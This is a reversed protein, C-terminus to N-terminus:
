DENETIDINAKFVYGYEDLLKMDKLLEGMGNVVCHMPNEACKVPVRIKDRFYEDIGRILAGGGTIIIGNEGIDANLQPPSKELIRRIAEVIRNLNERICLFIDTSSIEISKPLNTIYDKGVARLALEAELFKAAGIQNKITQATINGIVVDRERKAYRCIDEDFANGAIKISDSLAICGRSIIAIDTTGAGIDVIMTGKPEKISVGAGLAAALPEEIVCARAAGSAIVLDLVTKRDLESVGSPVCALVSPKFIQNGCIKQIYYCLIQELADYNYINGDKIPQIVTVSDPSKGLMEYANKGIAKIKETFTDYAIVSPEDIKIGKGEVLALISSTGLDFAIKEGLM